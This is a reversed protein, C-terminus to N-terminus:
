IRTVHRKDFLSMKSSFREKLSNPNFRQLPDFRKDNTLNDVVAAGDVVVICDDTVVVASFFEVVIDVDLVTDDPYSSSCSNLIHM